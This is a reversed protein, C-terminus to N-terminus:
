NIEIRETCRTYLVYFYVIIATFFLFVAAFRFGAALFLVAAFRFGAALFFVTAFFLFTARRRYHYARSFRRGLCDPGQFVTKRM